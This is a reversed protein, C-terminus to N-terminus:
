GIAPELKEADVTAADALERALSDILKAEKEITEEAAEDWGTIYNVCEPADLGISQCAIYAIADVIAEASQRGYAEYGIGRSHALEHILVRIQMNYSATSDFIIEEKQSDYWGGEPRDSLDKGLVTVGHDNAWEVLPAISESHSDGELPAATPRQALLDEQGYPVFTQSVDFVSVGVFGVRQGDDNPGNRKDEDLTFPRPALIRIGLMGKEVQHNLNKWAKFGAVRTCADAVPIPEGTVRDKKCPRQQAILLCNYFSYNHFVARSKLWKQWGESTRLAIIQEKLAERAREDKIM